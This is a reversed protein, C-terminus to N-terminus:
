KSFGKYTTGTAETEIQKFTEVAVGVVILLSTGGISVSSDLNFVMTTIIPIASLIALYTGGILTVKFLVRAIFDHTDEGPRVGPIFANQKSLNDAMKEPNITLFSYFFTFVYILIIYLIFGIVNNSNFIQDIWYGAGSATDSQLLGAITMPISMLTSAFIVPMVGASNLKVPINSETKQQRNAYQVPIKRTAIQMYTVGLIVGIYLAMVVIYLITSKTGTGNTIFQNWVKIMATPVSTLIGASIIISSGNGVGHRTINDSLWLIIASGATVVLAMYVYVMVSPEVGLQLENGLSSSLGLIIALANFFALVMAVYRTVKNIKKKGADGQEGWEKFLPVIDMQLIQIVISATIYPSIGLAMISFRGLAGGSFTNLFDFFSTENIMNTIADVQLLPVPIFAFVKYIFLILFTLGIKKMLSKNNLILKVKNFFNKVM